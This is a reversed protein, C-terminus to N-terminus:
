GGGGGGAGPAHREVITLPLTTGVELTRRGAAFIYLGCLRYDSTRLDILLFIGPASALNLHCSFTTTAHSCVADIDYLQLEADHFDTLALRKSITIITVGEDRLSKYLGEEVDM